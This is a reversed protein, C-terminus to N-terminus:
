LVGALAVGGLVELLPETRARNRALKMALKRRDEFAADAREIERAELGYTKVM